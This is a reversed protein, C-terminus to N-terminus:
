DDKRAPPQLEGPDLGLLLLAADHVMRYLPWLDLGQAHFRGQISVGILGGVVFDLWFTPTVERFAGSEMGRRLLTTAPRRSDRNYQRVGERIEPLIVGEASLATQTRIMEPHLYAHGVLAATYGRIWKEPDRTADRGITEAVAESYRDTIRMALAQLMGARNGFHWYISTPSIGAGEAILDITADRFGYQSIVNMAADL